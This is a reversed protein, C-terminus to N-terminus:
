IMFKLIEFANSFRCKDYAAILVKHLFISKIYKIEFQLIKIENLPPISYHYHNSGEM